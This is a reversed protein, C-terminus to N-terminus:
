NQTQSCFGRIHDSLHFRKPQAKMHHCKMEVMKCFSTQFNQQVQSQIPTKRASCCIPLM